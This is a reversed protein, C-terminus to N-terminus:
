VQSQGDCRVSGMVGFVGGGVYSRGGCVYLVWGWMGHYASNQATTNWLRAILSALHAM